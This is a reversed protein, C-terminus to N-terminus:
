HNSGNMKWLLVEEETPKEAKMLSIGSYKQLGELNGRGIVSVFSDGIPLAACGQINKEAYQMFDIQSDVEFVRKSVDVNRIEELTLEETLVGDCLVGYRTATKILETLIHSTILISIGQRHLSSLLMRISKMGNPDIGNFPEDLILLEPSAILASAISLRQKMGFSYTGVPKDIYTEADVIKVVRDIEKEARVGCLICMEKLIQTGRKGSPYRIGDFVAGIQTRARNLNESGLLMVKGSYDNEIGLL